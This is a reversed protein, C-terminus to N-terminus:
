TDETGVKESDQRKSPSMFNCLSLAIPKGSPEAPLSDTLLAPSGAKIGPSLLDGPSLFPLASWDDQKLFGMSLPAQHATTWPTVSDSM